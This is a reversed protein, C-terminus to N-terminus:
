MVYVLSGGFILSLLVVASTLATMADLRPAVISSAAGKSNSTASAGLNFTPTGHGGTAQHGGQRTAADTEQPHGQYTQTVAAGSATATASPIESGSIAVVNASTANFDTQALGIQNNTLDYVVYASRLFTDGFLIPGTGSSMLGFGCVTAAGDKFTPQSGDDLFIDTVFEGFSVQISPGGNGGFGFNFTAPSNALKCPVILGFDPDNIAGVGSIIPNIVSDPLYTATTGSDLIVPLALNTQSFATNGTADKVSVSTLAVTFDTYSSNSSPQVPLVILDGHFKATDIGGFLISGTNSNLDNLWLSYALTNIFGQDKMQAIINPYIDNPAQEAISEDADYGIGMIGFARTAQTALGMTMNKIVTNGIALTENIYDGTVGSNDEYSIQFANQAVDVFTSSKTDDFAGLQQCAQPSQQCADSDVSLVWIDSSGTDLQVSFSQPPTGITMNILYAIQENDIDVSVPKQRKRLRNTLPTNRPVQKKFDLGLVKPAPDPSPSAAVSSLSFLAAVLAYASFSPM